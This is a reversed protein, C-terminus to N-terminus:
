SEKRAFEVTLLALDHAYDDDGYKDCLVAINYEVSRDEDYLWSYAHYKDTLDRTIGKQVYGSEDKCVLDAIREEITRNEDQM